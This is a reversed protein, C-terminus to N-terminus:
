FVYPILRWSEGCYVDWDAGFERRMFAEEDRIRFLVVGTFPVILIFGIWSRFLLTMGIGLLLAGLYRPHRIFRYLGDKILHHDEQLTVDASYYKGLSIGSWFIFIFGAVALGLGVWRLPLGYGLVGIERRDAFPLFVLAAYMFGIIVNRVIRQRPMLKGKEGDGGRFGRPDIVAQVAVGVGLLAVVATYVCRPGVGWTSTVSMLSM